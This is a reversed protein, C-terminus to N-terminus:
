LSTIFMPWLLHELLRRWIGVKKPFLVELNREVEKRGCKTCCTMKLSGDINSYYPRGTASKCFECVPPNEKTPLLPKSAPWVPTTKPNPTPVLVADLTSTGINSCHYPAFFNNFKQNEQWQNIQYEAIRINEPEPIIRYTEQWLQTRRHKYIKYFYPNKALYEQAKHKWQLNKVLQVDIQGFTNCDIDTFQRRYVIKLNPDMMVEESYPAEPYPLEPNTPDLAYFGHNILWAELFGNSQAYLDIDSTSKVLHEPNFFRSGTLFFNWDQSNLLFNTMIHWSAIMSFNDGYPPNLCLRKESKNYVIM